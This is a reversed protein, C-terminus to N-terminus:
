KWLKCYDSYTRLEHDTISQAIERDRNANLTDGLIYKMAGRQYLASSFYESIGATDLVVANNYDEFADKHKRLERRCDGRRYYFEIDTPHALLGLSYVREENALDQNLFNYSLALKDFLDRDKYGKQISKEFDKIAESLGDGDHYDGHDAHRYHNLGNEYLQQGTRLNDCSTLTCTMIWYSLILIIKNHPPKM